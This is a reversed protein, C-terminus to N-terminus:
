HAAVGNIEPQRIFNDKSPLNVGHGCNEPPKDQDYRLRPVRAFMM